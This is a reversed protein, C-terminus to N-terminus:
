KRVRSLREFAKDVEEFAGNMKNMAEDLHNFAKDVKEKEDVDLEYYNVSSHIHETSVTDKFNKLNKLSKKVFEFPGKIFYELVKKKEKM